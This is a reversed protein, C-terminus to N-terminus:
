RNRNIYVSKSADHKATTGREERLNVVKRNLYLTSNKTEGKLKVTNLNSM